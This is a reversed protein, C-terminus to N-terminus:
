WKGAQVAQRSCVACLRPKTGLGSLFDRRQLYRSSPRTARRMQSLKGVHAQSLTRESNKRSDVSAFRLDSPRSGARGM